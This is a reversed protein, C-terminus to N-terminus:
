EVSTASDALTELHTSYADPLSMLVMFLYDKDHLTVGM